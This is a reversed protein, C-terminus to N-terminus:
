ADDFVKIRDRLEAAGEFDEVEIARRLKERLEGLSGAREVVSEAPPRYNHGTHLASGQVRRLLEKLSTEFTAYCTPCGMRGSERFDKLTLGCFSCRGNDTTTIAKQHVAQILAGLPHKPSASSTEVGREAACQECLHLQRVSNNEITTLNVVADREHCGECVM